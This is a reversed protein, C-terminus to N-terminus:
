SVVMGGQMLVCGLGHHSADCYIDFRQTIDSLVLIPASTLRKKLDEFNAQCEDSWKFEKGKELLKTMLKAIKSFDQIFHRYYGVLGLFSCIEFVNQPPKWDLVDKVKSPDM